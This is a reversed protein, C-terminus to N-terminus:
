NLKSYIKINKNKIKEKFLESKMRALLDSARNRLIRQRLINYYFRVPVEEGPNVIQLIKVYYKFREDSYDYEEAKKLSIRNFLQEPILTKLDSIYQWHDIDLHVLGREKLVYSRIAPLDETKWLTNLTDDVKDLKIKVLFYRAIPESISFEDKHKEFYSNLQNNTIVTDLNTKLFAEEYQHIFLSKRYDEVLESIKEDKRVHKRSEEFLIHDMLWGDTYNKIISVSDQESRASQLLSEIDSLYLEEGFASALLTDDTRVERTQQCSLFCLILLSLITKM